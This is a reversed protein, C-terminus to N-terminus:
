DRENNNITQQHSELRARIGQLLKLESMIMGVHKEAEVTQKIVQGKYKEFNEKFHREVEGEARVFVGVNIALLLTILLGGFVLWDDVRKNISNIKEEINIAHIKFENFEDGQMQKNNALLEALNEDKLARFSFLTYIKYGAISLLIGILIGLLLKM